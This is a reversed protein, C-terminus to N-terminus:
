KDHDLDKLYIRQEIRRSLQHTAAHKFNAFDLGLPVGKGLTTPVVTIICEDILNDNCFSKILEGGGLLWINKGSFKSKQQGVFEKASENLVKTNPTGATIKRSTFVYTPKGSYLWQGWDLIQEYTKRGMAISHIDKYFANYGFDEKGSPQPLWDVQGHQDAIFGDESTTIYLIVKGM